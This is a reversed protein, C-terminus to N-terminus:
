EDDRKQLKNKIWNKASARSGLPVRIMVDFYGAETEVIEVSVWYSSGKILLKYQNELEPM